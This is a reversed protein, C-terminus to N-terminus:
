RYGSLKQDQGQYKGKKQRLEGIKRFVEAATKEIFNHRCYIFIYLVHIKMKYQTICSVENQPEAEAFYIEAPFLSPEQIKGSRRSKNKRCTDRGTNRKLRLNGPSGIIVIKSDIHQQFANGNEKQQFIM